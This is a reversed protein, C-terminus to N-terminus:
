HALNLLFIEEDDWKKASIDYTHLFHEGFVFLSDDKRFYIHNQFRDSKGLEDKAKTTIKNSKLDVQFSKFSPQTSTGGGFIVIKDRDQYDNFCGM